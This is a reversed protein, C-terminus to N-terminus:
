YSMCKVVNAHNDLRSSMLKMMDAWKNIKYEFEKANMKDLLYENASTVTDITLPNYSDEPNLTLLIMYEILVKQLAKNELDADSAEFFETLDNLLNSM